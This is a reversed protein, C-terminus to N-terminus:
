FMITKLIYISISQDVKTIDKGTNRLSELVFGPTYDFLVGPKQKPPQKQKQKENKKKCIYICM